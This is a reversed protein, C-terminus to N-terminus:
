REGGGDRPPRKFVAGRRDGFVGADTEWWPRQLDSDLGDPSTQALAQKADLQRDIVVAEREDARIWKLVLLALIPLDITEALFWVIAGGYQQDRLLSPGWKRGVALYHSEALISTRLRIAIGPVADALLELFGFLIGAAITLSSSTAGEDALQIALIFGSVLLVVHLAEYVAYNSLSAPFIGTFFVLLTVVPLLLPAVAISSLARIPASETFEVLFPTRRLGQAARALTVPRGFMLLAPSIVLLVMIQVTYVWFLTHSYAGIWWMTVIGITLLGFGFSVIRMVPWSSGGAHVRRVGRAYWLAALLITLLALPDFTWSTMASGVTLQETICRCSATLVTM